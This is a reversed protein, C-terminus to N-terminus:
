MIRVLSSRFDADFAARWGENERNDSAIPPSHNAAGDDHISQSYAHIVAALRESTTCVTSCPINFQQSAEAQGAIVSGVGNFQSSSTSDSQGPRQSPPISDTAQIRANSSDDAMLREKRRM